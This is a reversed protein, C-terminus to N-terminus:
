SNGPGVNKDYVIFVQELATLPLNNRRSYEIVENNILFAKERGVDFLRMISIYHFSMEDVQKFGSSLLNLNDPNFGYKSRCTELIKKM